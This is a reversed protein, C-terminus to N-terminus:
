WNLSGAVKTSKLVVLCVSSHSTYLLGFIVARTFITEFTVSFFYLSYIMFVIFSVMLCM